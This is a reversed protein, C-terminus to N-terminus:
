LKKDQPIVLTTGVKLQNINSIRERNAEYIARWRHPTGYCRVSIKSLTDGRQIVYANPSSTAQSTAKDKSKKVKAKSIKAPLEKKTAMKEVVPVAQSSASKEIFDRLAQDTMAIADQPSSLTISPATNSPTITEQRSLPSSKAIVPKAALLSVQALEHELKELRTLVIELKEEISVINEKMVESKVETRVLSEEESRFIGMLFLFFLLAFAAGSLILLLKRKGISSESDPLLDKDESPFDKRYQELM